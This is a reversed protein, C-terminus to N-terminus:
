LGPIECLAFWMPRNAYPNLSQSGSGPLSFIESSRAEVRFETLASNVRASFCYPPYSGSGTGDPASLSYGLCNTLIWPRSSWASLSFTTTPFGGAQTLIPAPMSFIQRIRPYRFETSFSLRGDPTYVRFVPQTVGTSVYPGSQSILAWDFAGTCGFAVDPDGPGSIGLAIAGVAVDADPRFMFLPAGPGRLESYIGSFGGPVPGSVRGYNYVGLGPNASNLQMVGDPTYTRFATVM